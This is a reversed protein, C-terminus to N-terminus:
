HILYQRIGNVLNSWIDVPYIEKMCPIELGTIGGNGINVSAVGATGVPEGGKRFLFTGFRSFGHLQKLFCVPHEVLQIFIVM